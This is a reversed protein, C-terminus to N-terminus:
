REINTCSSNYSLVQVHPGMWTACALGIWMQFELHSYIERDFMSIVLSLNFFRVEPCFPEDVAAEVVTAGNQCSAVPLNDCIQAYEEAKSKMSSIHGLRKIFESCHELQAQCASLCYNAEPSEASPSYQSLCYISQLAQRCDSPAWSPVQSLQSSIIEDVDDVVVTNSLNFTIAGECVPGDYVLANVCALAGLLATLWLM